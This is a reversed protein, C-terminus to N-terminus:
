KGPLNDLRRRKLSRDSYIKYLPHDYFGPIKYINNRQPDTDTELVHWQDEFYANVWMHGNSVAAHADIDSAILLSMLLLSLNKCDGKKIRITEAVPAWREPTEVYDYEQRIYELIASIEGADDVAQPSFTEGTLSVVTPDILDQVQASGYETDVIFDYPIYDTAYKRNLQAMNQELFEAYNEINWPVVPLEEEVPHPEKVLTACGTALVFWLICIGVLKKIDYEPKLM